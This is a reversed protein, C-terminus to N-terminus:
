LGRPKMLPNILFARHNEHAGRSFLNPLHARQYNETLNRPHAAASEHTFVVKGVAVSLFGCLAKTTSPLQQKLSTTEAETETETQAKSRRLLKAENPQPHHRRHRQQPHRHCRRQQESRDDRLYLTGSGCVLIEYATELCECGGHTQHTNRRRTPHHSTRSPLTRRPTGASATTRSTCGRLPPTCSRCRRPSIRRGARRCHTRPKGM